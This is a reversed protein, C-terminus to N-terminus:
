GIFSEDLGTAKQIKSLHVSGLSLEKEKYAVDEQRVENHRQNTLSELRMKLYAYKERQFRSQRGKNIEQQLEEVPLADITKKVDDSLM